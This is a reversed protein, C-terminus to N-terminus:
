DHKRGEATLARRIYARVRLEVARREALTSQARATCGACLPYVILRGGGIHYAGMTCPWTVRHGCCACANPARQMDAAFADIIAGALAEAQAYTNMLGDIKGM